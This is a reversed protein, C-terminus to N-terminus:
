QFSIKFKFYDNIMKLSNSISHKHLSKQQGKKRLSARKKTNNKLILVKEALEEVSKYTWIEEELDYLKDLGPTWETLYCAGLMPAEIDRLRSYTDPKELPFRYSPYRNIGLTVMSEKSIATYDDFDPKGYYHQLLYPTLPINLNRQKLKRSYALIGQTKIFSFQHSVKNKITYDLGHGNTIIQKSDLNNQWSSGYISLKIKPYKLLVKNLLLHRQIDYSGLFSIQDNKESTEIRHKYEVWMPMPLHIFPLSAEQYMRLAKFEPVWNLNFVNFEEPLKRFQRVHDCYFNVCPIGMEQIRKIASTDIQEPYLYSLFIDAPNDKLFKITKEWTETKWRNQSEKEKAVLGEAWDVGPCEKWTHKAEKIGNKIYYEWFSYAPIAHDKQSQLFALHILM